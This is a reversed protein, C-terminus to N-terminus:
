SFLLAVVPEASDFPLHSPGCSGAIAMPSSMGPICLIYYRTEPMGRYSKHVSMARGKSFWKQCAVPSQYPILTQDQSVLPRSVVAVLQSSYAIWDVLNIM